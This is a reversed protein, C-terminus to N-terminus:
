IYQGGIYRLFIHEVDDAHMAGLIDIRSRFYSQIKREEEWFEKDLHRSPGSWLKGWKRRTRRIVRATRKFLDEITQCPDSGVELGYRFDIKNKGSLVYLFLDKAAQRSSINRQNTPDNNM